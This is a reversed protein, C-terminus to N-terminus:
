EMEVNNMVFMLLVLLEESVIIDLSKVQAIKFVVEVIMDPDMM